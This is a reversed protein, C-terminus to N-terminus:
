STVLATFPDISKDSKPKRISSAMGAFPNSKLLGSSEAWRCCAAFHTLLRKATSASLTQLLFDRIAVADRIDKSPLSDIHHAFKRIYDRQYTTPALQPRKYDCYSVWLESLDVKKAVTIKPRFQLKYRDLTPDLQDTRIDEEIQWAVVQAKKQNDTTADLGTYIYRSSGDAIRRPLRLRLKGQKDEVAVDAKSSKGRLPSKQLKTQKPKSNNEEPAM